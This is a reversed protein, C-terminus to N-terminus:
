RAYTSLILEVDDTRAIILSTDALEIILDAVNSSYLPCMLLHKGKGSRYNM